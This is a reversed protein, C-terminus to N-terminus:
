WYRLFHKILESPKRPDPHEANPVYLRDVEDVKMDLLSSFAIDTSFAARILKPVYNHPIDVGLDFDIGQFLICEVRPLIYAVM